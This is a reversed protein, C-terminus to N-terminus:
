GPQEPTTNIRAAIKRVASRPAMRVAFAGLKNRMGAVVMVRGQRFARHGTRAVQAASMSLQRFVKSPEAGAAVYFNTETPGPCLATVTVGTHALEEAIAETLSLVCAKSAYYVAMGPGPQFAATSAVNLVGGRRRQVMGPLFLRTLSALAMVNVQLMDMQCQLSLQDFRGKFGFGANNVLIDIPLSAQQFHDFVCGPADPQALDAPFIHTQTRFEAQLQAALKELAPRNRSVLALACGEAAFCRALELGIGSSAGTVLVTEAGPM